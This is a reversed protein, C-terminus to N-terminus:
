QVTESIERKWDRKQKHRSAYKGKKSEHRGAGSMNQSHKAVLNRAKPKSKKGETLEDLRM